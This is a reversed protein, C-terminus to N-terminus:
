KVRHNTLINLKEKGRYNIIVTVYHWLRSPTWACILSFILTGRWQGKQPSDVPSQHIGKANSWYRPFDNRHRWLPHSQTESWWGWLQKSLRKNPRLDFNVDFSRTVPRQTFFDGPVPSNGAWIALLASFTEMQHRWWTNGNPSTMMIHAGCQM